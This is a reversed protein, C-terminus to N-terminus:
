ADSAGKVRSAPRALIGDDHDNRERFNMESLIFVAHPDGFGAQQGAAVCVPAVATFGHEAKLLGGLRVEFREQFGAAGDRGREAVPENEGGSGHAFIGGVIAALQLPTGAFDAAFEKAGRAAVPMVRIGKPGVPEDPEGSMRAVQGAADDGVDAVVGAQAAVIEVELFKSGRSQIRAMVASRKRKSFVDPM